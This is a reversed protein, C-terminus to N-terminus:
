VSEWQGRRVEKKIALESPAESADGKTSSLAAVRKLIKEAKNFVGFTQKGCAACKKSKKNNALACANCFYHKCLTVVPEKYPERCIFCAFPIEEEEPVAYKNEDEEEEDGAETPAAATHEEDGFGALSLEVKRKKRLQEADWEKELQWGSKYDGRDHM